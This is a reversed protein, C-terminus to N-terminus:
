PMEPMAAPLARPVFAVEPAVFQTRFLLTGRLTLMLPASRVGPMEFLGEEPRSVSLEFAEAGFLRNADRSTGSLLENVAQRDLPAQEVNILREGWHRALFGGNIADNVLARASTALKVQLRAEQMRQNAAALAQEREGIRAYAENLGSRARNFLVASFVLAGLAIGFAILTGRRSRRLRVLLPLAPAKM